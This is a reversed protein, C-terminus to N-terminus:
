KSTMLFVGFLMMRGGRVTDAMAAIGAYTIPSSGYMFAAGQMTLAGPVVIGALLGALGAGVVGTAVLQATWKYGYALEFPSIILWMFVFGILSSFVAGPSPPEVLAYTVLQWLTHVGLQGPFLALAQFVPIGLFNTLVLQLVFAILLAIILQKVFRILRPFAFSLRGDMTTDKALQAGGQLDRRGPGRARTGFV